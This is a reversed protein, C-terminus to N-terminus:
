IEVEWWQWWMETQGEAGHEERSRTCATVAKELGMKLDAEGTGCQPLSKWPGQPGQEGRWPRLGPQGQASDVSLRPGM